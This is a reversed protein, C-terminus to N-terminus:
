KRQICEIQVIRYGASELKEIEGQVEWACLETSGSGKPDSVEWYIRFLDFPSKANSPITIKPM